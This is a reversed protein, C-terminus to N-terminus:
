LAGKGGGGALVGGRRQQGAHRGEVDGGMRADERPGAEARDLEPETHGVPVLDLELESCGCGCLRGRIGARCRSGSNGWEETEWWTQRHRWRGALHGGGSGPGLVERNGDM